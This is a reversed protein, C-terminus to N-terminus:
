GDTIRPSTSVLGKHKFRIKIRTLLSLPPIRSYTELHQSRSCNQLLVTLNFIANEGLRRAGVITVVVGSIVTVPLSYTFILTERGGNQRSKHKVAGRPLQITARHPLPAPVSELWDSNEQSYKAGDSNAWSM